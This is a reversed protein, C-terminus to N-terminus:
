KFFYLRFNTGQKTAAMSLKNRTLGSLPSLPQIILSETKLTIMSIRKPVRTSIIVERTKIIRLMTIMTTITTTTPIITTTTTTITTITPSDKLVSTRLSSRRWWASPLWSRDCCELWISVVKNEFVWTRLPTSVFSRMNSLEAGLTRFRVELLDEVKIPTRRRCSPGAEPWSVKALQDCKCAGDRSAPATIYDFGMMTSECSGQIWVIPQLCEPHDMIGSPNIWFMGPTVIILAKTNATSRFSM